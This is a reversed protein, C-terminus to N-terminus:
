TGTTPRPGLYAFAWRDKGARYLQYREPHRYRDRNHFQCTPGLKDLDTAGGDSWNDIHDIQCLHAPLHCGDVMCTAYRALIARRQTRTARRVKRGMDLIQSDADMVLRTLTSTSALRHIDSVPLFQGTSLLLGPLRRGSMLGAPLAWGAIQEGWSPEGSPTGMLPTTDPPPEHPAPGGRESEGTHPGASSPAETGEPPQPGRCPSQDPAPDDDASERPSRRARPAERHPGSGPACAESEDSDPVGSDPVGSDPLDSDPVDSGRTAVQSEGSRHEESQSGGTGAEGTRSSSSGSGSRSSPRPGAPRSRSPQSTGCRSGPFGDPPLDGSSSDGGTGAHGTRSGSSPRSGAPRSRSPTTTEPDDPLSAANVLVLLETSVQQELFAILTDANRVRLPRDDGQARPKAYADLLARLRAGAERPLRFEGELGGTSSERVLLFRQEYDAEADDEAGDPNLVEHLYRGARAVEAPTAQDALTVLIPEALEAQEDTLRGTAACIATVQGESLSGQAFRERVVPLRALEVALGVLRGAGSTTMGAAGRLWTRTSAHGHTRAEGAAHVRRIRATIASTLRDRAFLLDQAEALCVGASDPVTAVALASASERISAVLPWSARPTRSTQTRGADPDGDRGGDGLGAAVGAGAGVRAPGAAGGDISDATGAGAVGAGVGGDGDGGGAARSGSDLDDNTIGSAGVNGNDPIHGFLGDFADDLVFASSDRSARAAAGSEM